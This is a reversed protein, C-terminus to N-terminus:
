NAESILGEEFIGADLRVPLCDAGKLCPLEIHKLLPVSHQSGEVEASCSPHDAGFTSRVSPFVDRRPFVQSNKVLKRPYESLQAVFQRLFSM